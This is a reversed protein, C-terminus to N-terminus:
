DPLSFREGCKLVRYPQDLRKAQRIFEDPSATNFAFMEYHCPIVLKIQSDHALQAAEVGSLNGAVGRSPDRGNIPLLALDIQYQRLLEHMGPYRVTDGSHYVTLPGAQIVLGIYRASGSADTELKEHASPVATFTLGNVKVARDAPIGTLREAPLQLRQAAFERNAESVLIVLGPNAALLAGLTEGDLHDTHNHSSTAIDIFDLAEPAVLRETMREHPTDTAAYKRTLSDSLYPDVLVHIGHFQLLFGSQGLWWLHLRDPEASAARVDELFEENMLVPRIM